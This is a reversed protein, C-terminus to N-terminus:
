RFPMIRVMRWLIRFVATGSEKKAYSCLFFSIRRYRCLFASQQTYLLGSMAAPRIIGGADGTRLHYLGATRQGLRLDATRNGAPDCHGGCVGAVQKNTLSKPLRRSTGSDESDAEKGNKLIFQILFYGLAVGAAVTMITQVWSM